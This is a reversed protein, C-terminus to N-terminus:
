KRRGKHSKESGVGIDAGLRDLVETISEGAAVGRAVEGLLIKAIEPPFGEPIELQNMLDDVDFEDEDDEDDEDDEEAALRWNERPDEQDAEDADHARQWGDEGPKMRTMRPREARASLTASLCLQTWDARYLLTVLGPIDTLAPKSAAM